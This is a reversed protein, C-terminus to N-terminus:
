CLLLGFRILLSLQPHECLDFITSLLSAPMCNCLYTIQESIDEGPHQQICSDDSITATQHWFLQWSDIIQFALHSNRDRMGCCQSVYRKMCELVSLGGAFLLFALFFTKLICLCIWSRVWLVWAVLCGEIAARLSELTFMIECALLVCAIAASIRRIWVGCCGDTGRGPETLNQM